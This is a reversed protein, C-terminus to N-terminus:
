DVKWKTNSFVENFAGWDLLWITTPQIELYPVLTSVECVFSSSLMVKGIRESALEIGGLRTSTIEICSNM